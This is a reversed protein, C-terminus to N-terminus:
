EITNSCCRLVSFAGRQKINIVGFSFNTHCAKRAGRPIQPSTKCQLLRTYYFFLSIFHFSVIKVVHWLLCMWSKEFKKKYIGHTKKRFLRRSIIKAWFIYWIKTLTSLPTLTRLYIVSNSLKLEKWEDIKPFVQLSSRFIKKYEYQAILSITM